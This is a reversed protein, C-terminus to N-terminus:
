GSRHMYGKVLERLETGLNYWVSPKTDEVQGKQSSQFSFRMLALGFVASLSTLAVIPTVFFTTAHFHGEAIAPGCHIWYLLAVILVAIAILGCYFAVARFTRFQRKDKIEEGSYARTESDVDGYSLDDEVAPADAGNAEEEPPDGEITM